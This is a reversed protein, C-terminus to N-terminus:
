VGLAQVETLARRFAPWDILSPAYVVAGPISAREWQEYCEPRGDTDHAVIREPLADLELVIGHAPGGVFVLRV